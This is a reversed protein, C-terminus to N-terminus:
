RKGVTQRGSRSSGADLRRRGLRRRRSSPGVTPPAFGGSIAGPSTASHDFARCDFHPMPALRNPNRWLRASKSFINVQKQDTRERLWLPIKRTFEGPEDLRSEVIKNIM